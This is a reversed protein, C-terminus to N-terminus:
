CAVRGPFVVDGDDITCDPTISAKAWESGDPRGARLQAIKVVPLREENEAPRFKQLALGNRYDAIEDLAKVEWGEPIEGLESAM